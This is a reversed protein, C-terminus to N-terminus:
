RLSLGGTAHESRHSPAKPDHNPSFWKPDGLARESRNRRIAAWRRRLHLRRARAGRWFLGAVPLGLIRPADYRLWEFLSPSGIKEGHLHWALYGGTAGRKDAINQLSPWRLRSLSFRHEVCIDYACGLRYGLRRLRTFFETEDGFGIAGPGLCTKFPGAEILAQRRILMNAGVIVGIEKVEPREAFAFWQRLTELGLREMVREYRRDFGLGGAIADCRSEVAASRMRDVWREPVRVDDDTFLVFDGSAAAIGRNYAHGKGPQAEYVYRLKPWSKQHREITERTADSSANDVVLVELLSSGSTDRRKLTQLTRHLRRANNCTCILVTVDQKTTHGTM